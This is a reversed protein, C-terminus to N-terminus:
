WASRAAPRVNAAKHRKNPMQAHESLDAQDDDDDDGGEHEDGDDVSARVLVEDYSNEEESGGEAGIRCHQGGGGRWEISTGNPVGNVLVNSGM